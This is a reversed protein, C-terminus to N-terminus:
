GGTVERHAARVIEGAELVAAARVDPDTSDVAREAAHLRRARAPYREIEVVVGWRQYFMRIPVGSDEDGARVFAQQFEDFFEPLRPAAVTAVAQRLAPLTLEPRRMVPGDDGKHAKISLEAYVVKGVTRPETGWRDALAGVLLLGRGFQEDDAAARPSPVSEGRPDTVEVRLAAAGLAIRVRFLRDRLCGHLVANTALESVLLAADGALEPYGWAAVLRATHRRALTVSRATPTYDLCDEYAPGHEREEM